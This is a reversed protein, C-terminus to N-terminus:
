SLSCPRNQAMKNEKILIKGLECYITFPLSHLDGVTQAKILGDKGYDMEVLLEPVDSEVLLIKKTPPNAKTYGDLM